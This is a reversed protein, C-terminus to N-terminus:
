VMQPTTTSPSSTTSATWSPATISLAITTRLHISRRGRVRAARGCAPVTLNVNCHTMSEKRRARASQDVGKQRGGEECALGWYMLDGAAHLDDAGLVADGVDECVVELGHSESEAVYLGLVVAGSKM